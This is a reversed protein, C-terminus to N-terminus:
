RVRRRMASVSDSTGTGNGRGIPRNPESLSCGPCCAEPAVFLAKNLGRRRRRTFSSSIPMRSPSEREGPAGEEWAALDDTEIDLGFLVERAAADSYVRGILARRGIEIREAVGLSREIYDDVVARMQASALHEGEVPEELM